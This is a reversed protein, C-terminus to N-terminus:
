KSSDSTTGWQLVDTLQITRHRRTVLLEQLKLLDLFTDEFAKRYEHHAELYNVDLPWNLQESATMLSSTFNSILVFAILFLCSKRLSFLRSEV